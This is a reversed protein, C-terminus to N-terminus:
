PETFAGDRYCYVCYDKSLTGNAETGLHEDESMPM